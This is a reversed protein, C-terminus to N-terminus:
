PLADASPSLFIVPLIVWIASTGWFNVCESVLISIGWKLGPLPVYYLLCSCDWGSLVALVVAYHESCDHEQALSDALPLLMPQVRLQQCIQTSKQSCQDKHYCSFGICNISSIIKVWKQQSSLGSLNSYCSLDSQGKVFSEVIDSSSNHQALLPTIKSWSATVSTICMAYSIFMKKKGKRHTSGDLRLTPASESYHRRGTIPRPYLGWWESIRAWCSSATVSSNSVM